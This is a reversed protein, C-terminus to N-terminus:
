MGSGQVKPSSQHLELKKVMRFHISCSVQYPTDVSYMRPAVSFQCCCRKSPRPNSALLADHQVVDAVSWVEDDLPASARACTTKQISGSLGCSLAQTGTMWSPVCFCSSYICAGPCASCLWRPSTLGEEDDYRLWPKSDKYLIWTRSAQLISPCYSMYSSVCKIYKVQGNRFWCGEKSTQPEQLRSWM